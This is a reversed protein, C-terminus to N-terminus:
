NNCVRSRKDTKPDTWDKSIGRKDLDDCNITSPKVEEYCIQIKEGTNPNTWVRSIGMLDLEECSSQGPTVVRSQRADAEKNEITEIVLTSGITALTLSAFIYILSKNFLNLM